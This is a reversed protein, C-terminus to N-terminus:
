QIFSSNNTFSTYNIELFPDNEIVLEGFQQTSIEARKSYSMPGALIKIIIAGLSFIVFKNSIVNEDIYEPPVYGSCSMVYIINGVGHM